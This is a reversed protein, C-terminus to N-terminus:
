DVYTLWKEYRIVKGAVAKRFVTELGCTVPGPKGTGIVHETKPAGPVSEDTVRTIPTIEVATGSFFAEDAGFLEEKTIPAIKTPYGLDHAIELLSARTIGELISESMMNTRVVGNKVLFINEGPGEAVNGEMNLFIAEDFGKSKAELASTASQVYIGGLKARMDLQSHHVRRRPVILTSVGKDALEGLYEGWQWAGILLEVPCTKPLLGLNGYSYYMLPRIYASQLRNERVVSRITDMIEGKGYPPDMRIVSASVFFRDVHEPLRFVAPGRDTAYARIGEFTSTGYHLAHAMPHVAIEAWDHFKGMHWYKVAGPFNTNPFM